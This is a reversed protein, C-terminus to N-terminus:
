KVVEYDAVEWDTAFIDRSDISDRWVHLECGRTRVILSEQRHIYEYKRWAKRRVECGRRLYPFVEDFRM